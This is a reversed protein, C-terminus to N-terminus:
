HALFLDKATTTWTNMAGSQHPAPCLARHDSTFLVQTLLAQNQSNQKKATEIDSAQTECLKIVM